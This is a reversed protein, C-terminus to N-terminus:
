FDRLIIFFGECVPPVGGGWLIGIRYGYSSFFGEVSGKPNFFFGKPHFFVRWWLIGGLQKFFRCWRSPLNLSTGFGLNEGSLEWALNLGLFLSALVVNKSATTIILYRMYLM